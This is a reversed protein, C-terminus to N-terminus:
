HQLHPDHPPPPIVLYIYICVGFLSSCGLAATLFITVCSLGLSMYHAVFNIRFGLVRFGQGKVAPIAVSDRPM